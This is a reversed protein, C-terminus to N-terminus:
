PQGPAAPDVGESEAKIGLWEDVSVGAEAIIKKLLGEGIDARHPNPVKVLRTGKDMFEPHDGARGKNAQHPGDWGLERAAPAIKSWAM